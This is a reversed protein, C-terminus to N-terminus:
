AAEKAIKALEAFAEPDNGGFRGTIKRDLTVNARKLASIFKSYDLRARSGHM